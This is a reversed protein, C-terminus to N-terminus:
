WWTRPRGRAAAERDVAARGEEVRGEAARGGALRHDGAGRGLRHGAEARGVVGRAVGPRRAEVLLRGEVVRGVALLREGARHQDVVVRGAVARDVVPLRRAAALHRAAAWLVVVPLRVGEWLAVAQRHAVGALYPGVGQLLGAVWLGVVRLRPAGVLCPGAAQRPGVGPRSLGGEVRAPVEAVQARGAVQRCAVGLRDRDVALLDEERRRRAGALHDEQRDAELREPHGEEAQHDRRNAAELHQQPRCPDVEEHGVVVHVGAGRAAASLVVEPLRGAAELDGAGRDVVEPGEVVHGVLRPGAPHLRLVVAVRVVVQLGVQLDVQLVGPRAAQCPDAGAPHSLSLAAARVLPGALSLAAV